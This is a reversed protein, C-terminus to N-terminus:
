NGRQNNTNINDNNSNKFGDRFDSPLTTGTQVLVEGLGMNVNVEFVPTGTGITLTQNKAAGSYEKGNVDDKLSGAGLQVDVRAAVGPPLMVVLQGAGMQVDTTIPTNTGADTRLQPSTLNLVAQGAGTNLTRAQAVTTPALNVNGLGSFTDAGTGAANAGLALALVVAAPALVGSRRGMLGSVILGFGVVILGAAVGLPWSDTGIGTALGALLAVGLTAQRLPKSPATRRSRTAIAGDAPQAVPGSQYPPRHGAPQAPSYGPEAAGTSGGAFPIPPEYGTSPGPVPGAAPGAAPGTATQANKGGPHSNCSGGRRKFLWVGILLLPILFFPKPGDHDSVVSGVGSIMALLAGFFGATFDGKTAAEAHIRGNQQPMFMWLAGYVFLGVGLLLSLAVFIGRILVPDIGLRNGLGAAVGAAWRGSDPRVAGTERIKNMFSDLDPSRSGNPPQQQTSQQSM